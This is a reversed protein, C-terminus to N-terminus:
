LLSPTKNSVQSLLIGPNCSVQGRAAADSLAAALAQPLKLEQCVVAIDTAVQPSWSGHRSGRHQQQQQEQQRQQYQQRRQQRETAAALRAALARHKPQLVKSEQVGQQPQQQEAQQQQQRRQPVPGPKVIGPPPAFRPSSQVHKDTFLRKLPGAHLHVCLLSSEPCSCSAAAAVVVAAVVVAAATPCLGKSPPKKLPPANVLVNSTEQFTRLATQQGARVRELVFGVTM